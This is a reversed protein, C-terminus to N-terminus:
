GHSILILFYILVFLGRFLNTQAASVIPVCRSKQFGSRKVQTNYLLNQKRLRLISKSALFQSPSPSVLQETYCKPSLLQSLPVSTSM